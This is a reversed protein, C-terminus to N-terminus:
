DCLRWIIEKNHEVQKRNKNNRAASEWALRTSPCRAVELHRLCLRREVRFSDLAM